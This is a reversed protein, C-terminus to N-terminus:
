VHYDNSSRVGANNERCKIRGRAPFASGLRATRMGGGFAAWRTVVKSNLRLSNARHGNGHPGLPILIKHQDRPRDRRPRRAGSRTDSCHKSAIMSNKRGAIIASWSIDLVTDIDTAQDNVVMALARRVSLRIRDHLTGQM